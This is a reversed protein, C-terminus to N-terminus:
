DRKEVGEVKILGNELTFLGAEQLERAMDQITSFKMGTQLSFIAIVKSLKEGDHNRILDLLKQKYAKRLEVATLGM